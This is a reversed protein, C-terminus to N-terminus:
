SLDKSTSIPGTGYLSPKCNLSLELLSSTNTIQASIWAFSETLTLTLSLAYLYEARVAGYSSCPTRARTQPWSGASITQVPLRLLKTATVKFFDRLRRWTITFSELIRLPTSSKQGRKPRSSIFEKTSTKISASSGSWTLLQIKTKSSKMNTSKRKTMM